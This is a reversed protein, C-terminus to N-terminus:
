RVKEKKYETVVKILYEKVEGWGPRDNFIGIRSGPLAGEAEEFYTLAQLALYPNFIGPYKEESYSFIKELGFRQILYYIDIFDRREGRQIIAILKMASIDELSLLLLHKTHFVPRIVKYDYYFVSVQIGEVDVILTGNSMQIVSLKKFFQRFQRLITDLEFETKDYFDFDISSRHGIQLALGTGGALYIQREKLFGLCPLIERQKNSLIDYYIEAQM